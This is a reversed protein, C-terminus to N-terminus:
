VFDPLFDKLVGYNIKNEYYKSEWEKIRTKLEDITISCDNGKSANDSQLVLICNAPHSLLYPDIKHDFGYRVSVMHDRLVGGLNNGRNKASYWGYTNILNFDFEDPYSKVGFKFQCCQRYMKLM